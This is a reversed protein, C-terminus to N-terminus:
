RKTEDIKVLGFNMDGTVNFHNGVRGLAAHHSVGRQSTHVRRLFMTYDQM